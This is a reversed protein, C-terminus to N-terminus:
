AALNSKSVFLKWAIQSGSNGSNIFRLWQCDTWSCVPEATLLVGRTEATNIETDDSDKM